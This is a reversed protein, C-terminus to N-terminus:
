AGYLWGNKKIYEVLPCSFDSFRCEFVLIYGWFM